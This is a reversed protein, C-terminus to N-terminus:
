ILEGQETMRVVSFPNGAMAQGVEPYGKGNEGNLDQYTPFDGRFLLKIKQWLSELLSTAENPQPSPLDFTLIQGRSYLHRSDILGARFQNLFLIGSVLAILAALNLVVIRRTLSSFAHLGAFRWVGLIARRIRGSSPPAAGAAFEKPDIDTGVTM